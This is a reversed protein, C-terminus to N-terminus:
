MYHHWLSKYAFIDFQISNLQILFYFYLIENEQPLSWADDTNKDMRYMIVDNIEKYLAM